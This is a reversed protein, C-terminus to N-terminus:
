SSPCGKHVAAKFFTRSNVNLSLQLQVISFKLALKDISSRNNFLMEHLEMIWSYYFPVLAFCCLVILSSDYSNLWIKLISLHVPSYLAEQIIWDIKLSRLQKEKTACRVSISEWTKDTKNKKCFQDEWDCQMTTHLWNGRACMRDSKNSHSPSCKKSNTWCLTSEVPLHALRLHFFKQM